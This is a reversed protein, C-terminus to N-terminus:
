TTAAATLAAELDAVLDASDELGVSLRVLGDSIGAEARAAETMSAHTMSAPLSVLSEVGGLSQALTFLALRKAFIRPDLDPALELSLVVGFGSQQRAALEHGPHGALGPYHVAAVDPRSALWQAIDLAAASQTRARVPLTRIGRLALFADFGALGTGAANAWWRHRDLRKPDTEVLVGGVMDSHGNILKTASHIVCDAGLEIPRQLAPSLLTNDVAVLAGAAKGLRAAAAIDTIRLLPNSPTELILLAAGKALAAEIAGTEWSRAYIVEFRGGAARADLLRRTGGYADVPAVIRAGHPLDNLLLDIAAMGSATAVAGVGGELEAISEEFLARGPHATRAYDFDTVTEPTERAYASSLHIPATIARHAPDRNIGARAARTDFGTM